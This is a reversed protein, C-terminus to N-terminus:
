GNLQQTQVNPILSRVEAMKITKGEFIVYPHTSEGLTKAFVSLRAREDLTLDRISTYEILM